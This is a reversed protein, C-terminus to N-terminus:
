DFSKEHLPLGGKSAKNQSRRWITYGALAVIAVGLLLMQASSPGDAEEEKTLAAEGPHEELEPLSTSLHPAAM